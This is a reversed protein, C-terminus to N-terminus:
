KSSVSIIPLGLTDKKYEGKYKEFPSDPAFVGVSEKQEKIDEDSMPVVQAQAIVAEESQLSLMASNYEIMMDYHMRLMNIIEVLLQNGLNQADTQTNAQKAQSLLHKYRSEMEKKSIGNAAGEGSSYYTYIKEYNAVKGLTIEKIANEKTDYLNKIYNIQSNYTDFDVKKLAEQAEQITQNYQLISQAIANIDIVPMNAYLFSPISVLTLLFNLISKRVKLTIFLPQM